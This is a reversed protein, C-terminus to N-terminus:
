AVQMPRSIAPSSDRPRSAGLSVPLLKLSMRSRIFLQNLPFKQRAWPIACAVDFCSKTTTGPADSGDRCVRWLIKSHPKQNLLFLLAVHKFQHIYVGLICHDLHNPYATAAAVRDVVHDRRAQAAHFEDGDVGVRLGQIAVLGLHLQLKAIAHGLAQACARIRIDAAFGCQFVTLADGLHDVACVHQEDGGAHAAAGAGAGCGHHGFDGLFEADEGHGDDGLGEHEFALAHASGVGADFRQRRWTSESM